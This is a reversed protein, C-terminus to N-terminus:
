AFAERSKKNGKVIKIPPCYFYRSSLCIAQAKGTSELFQSYQKSYLIDLLVFTGGPRLVRLIESLAKNREMEDSLNHIALSSVVYDFQEDTFPLSRMDATQIQLRDLVQANKANNMTTSMENGSQDKPSWLDIAYMKGRPISKAIEICFMGRGCGIDLVTEDGKLGLNKILNAIIRPKAVLTSYLMWCSSALLFFAAALLYFFLAWTWFSHALPWLILSTLFTLFSFLFLNRVVNPADIGYQRYTDRLNKM